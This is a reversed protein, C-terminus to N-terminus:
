FPPWPSFQQWSAHSEHRCVKEQWTHVVGATSLALFPFIHPLISLSTDSFKDKPAKDLTRWLNRNSGALYRLSYGEIPQKCCLQWLLRRRCCRCDFVYIKLNQHYPFIYKGFIWWRMENKQDHRGVYLKWSLVQRFKTKRWMYKQCPRSSNPHPDSVSTYKVNKTVPLQPEPHIQTPIQCPHMCKFNQTVPLWPNQSRTPINARIHINSMKPQRHGLVM